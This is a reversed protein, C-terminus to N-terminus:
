VDESESQKVKNQRKNQRCPLLTGYIGFAISLSTVVIIVGLMIFYVVSIPLENTKNVPSGSDIGHMMIPAMTPTTPRLTAIGPVSVNVTPALTPALTQGHTMRLLTTSLLAIIQKM